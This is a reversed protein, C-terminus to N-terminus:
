TSTSFVVLCAGCPQATAVVPQGVDLPASLGLQFPPSGYDAVEFYLCICGIIIAVLALALM